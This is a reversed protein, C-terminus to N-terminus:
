GFPFLRAEVFPSSIILWAVLVEWERERERRAEVMGHSTVSTPLREAPIGSVQGGDERIFGAQFTGVKEIRRYVKLVSYLMCFNSGGGIYLLEHKGGAKVLM